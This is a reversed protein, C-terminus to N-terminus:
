GVIAVNTLVNTFSVNAHGYGLGDPGSGAGLIEERAWRGSAWVRRRSNRGLDARVTGLIEEQTLCGIVCAVRSARSRACSSILYTPDTLPAPGEM